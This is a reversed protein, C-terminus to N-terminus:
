CGFGRQRDTPVRIENNNYRIKFYTLLMYTNYTHINPTFQTYIHSQTYIHTYIHLWVLWMYGIVCMYVCMVRCMLKVCGTDGDSRVWVLGRRRDSM